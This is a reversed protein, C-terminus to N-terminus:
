TAYGGGHREAADAVGELQAAKLIGNPIRLRCM